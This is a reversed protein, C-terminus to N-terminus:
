INLFSKTDPVSQGIRPHCFIVNGSWLDIIFSDLTFIEM